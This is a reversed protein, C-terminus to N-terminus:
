DPDDGGDGGDCGICGCEGIIGGCGCLCEADEGGDDATEPLYVKYSMDKSADNAGVAGPTDSNSYSMVRENDNHTLEVDIRQVDRATEEGGNWKITATTATSTVEADLDAEDPEIEMDAGPVNIMANDTVRRAAAMATINKNARSTWVVSLIFFLCYFSVVIALIVLSVMIEVLTLGKENKLRKM